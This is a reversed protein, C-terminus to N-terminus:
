PGTRFTDVAVDVDVDVDQAPMDMTGRLEAECWVWAGELELARPSM